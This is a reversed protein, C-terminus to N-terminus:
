DQTNMPHVSTSASVGINQGGSAFLQSMQFSALAPFSQLCSSVHAVFSSITPHMVSEISMLKLLGQSNIISMSAQRAATWPTGFLQVRSLSQVSSFIGSYIQVVDKDMERNISMQTAEMDQSNYITSCHINPCM